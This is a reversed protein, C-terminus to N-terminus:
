IEWAQPEGNSFLKREIKLLHNFNENREETWRWNKIFSNSRRNFSRSRKHTSQFEFSQKTIRPLVHVNKISYHTLFNLQVLEEFTWRCATSVSIKKRIEVEFHMENTATDYFNFFGIETHKNSCTTGMTLERREDLIYSVAYFVKLVLM